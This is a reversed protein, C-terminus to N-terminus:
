PTGKKPASKGGGLGKVAAAAAPTQLFSALASAVEPTLGKIDVEFRSVTAGDMNGSIIRFDRRARDVDDQSISKANVAAQMEEVTKYGLLIATGESIVRAENLAGRTRQVEASMLNEGVTIDGLRVGFREEFPTRDGGVFKDHLATNLEGKQDTAEQMTRSAHWDTIFAIVLDRLDQGVAGVGSLYAIPNEFDPRLRFSGTGTITGDKCIATFKFDEAVEVVPINNKESRREWPFSFHTGPGYVVNVGEAGLLSKLQDITVLLGTTDNQVVFIHKMALFAVVGAVAGAVFGPLFMSGSIFVWLLSGGILGGLVALLAPTGFFVAARATRNRPIQRDDAQIISAM